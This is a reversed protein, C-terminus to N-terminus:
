PRARAPGGPTCWRDVWGVVRRANVRILEPAPACVMRLGDPDVRRGKGKGAGGGGAVDWGCRVDRMLSVLPIPQHGGGCGFLVLDDVERGGPHEARVLGLEVVRRLVLAGVSQEGLVGPPRVRAAVVAAAPEGPQEEALLQLVDGPGLVDAGGARGHDRAELASQLAALEPAHPATM